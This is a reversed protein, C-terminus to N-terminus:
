FRCSRSGRKKQRRKEFAMYAVNNLEQSIEAPRQLDPNSATGRTAVIERQVSNAPCSEDM